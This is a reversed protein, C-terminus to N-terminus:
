PSLIVCIVERLYIYIYIYIHFVLCCNRVDAFHHHASARTSMQGVIDMTRRSASNEFLVKFRTDTAKRSADDMPISILANRVADLSLESEDVLFQHLLRLDHSFNAQWMQDDLALCKELDEKTAM